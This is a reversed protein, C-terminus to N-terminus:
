RHLLFDLYITLLIKNYIKINHDVFNYGLKYGAETDPDITLM